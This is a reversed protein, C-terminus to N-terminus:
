AHTREPMFLTNEFLQQKTSVGALRRQILMAVAPLSSDGVTQRRDAFITLYTM